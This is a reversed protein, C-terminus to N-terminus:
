RPLGSVVKYFDRFEEKKIFEIVMEFFMIANGPATIEKVSLGSVDSLLQYIEAECKSLNGLVVDAVEMIVGVGVGIFASDDQMAEEGKEKFMNQILGIISESEMCVKFERIGIKSIIKTMLFIDPAGLARFTYKKEPQEVSEVPSKEIAETM